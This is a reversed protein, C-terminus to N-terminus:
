INNERKPYLCTFYGNVSPYKSPLNIEPDIFKIRGTLFNIKTFPILFENAYNSSLTNLPLLMIIDLNYKQWQTFAKKVFDKTKSHPPNCWIVKNFTHNKNNIDGLYKYPIWDIKLSDLKETLFYLCKTNERTASVDLTPELKWIKCCRKYIEEPTSFSDMVSKKNHNIIM